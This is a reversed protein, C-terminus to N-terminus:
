EPLEYTQAFARAGVISFDSPAYQVLWSDKITQSERM